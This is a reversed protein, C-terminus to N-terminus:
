SQTWSANRFAKLPPAPKAPRDDIPVQSCRMADVLGQLLQAVAAAKAFFRELGRGAIRPSLAEVARVAAGAWRGGRVIENQDRAM